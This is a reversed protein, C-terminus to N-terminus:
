VPVSIEFSVEKGLILVSSGVEHYICYTGVFRRSMVAVVCSTVDTFVARESTDRYKNIDHLSNLWKEPGIVLSMCIFHFEAIRWTPLCVLGKSYTGQQPLRRYVNVQELPDCAEM